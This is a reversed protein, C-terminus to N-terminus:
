FNSFVVEQHDVNIKLYNEFLFFFAQTSEWGSSVNLNKSYM